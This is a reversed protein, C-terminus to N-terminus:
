SDVSLAPEVAGDETGVVPDVSIAMWPGVPSLRDHARFELTVSGPTVDELDWRILHPHGQDDFIALSTTLGVLGHGGIATDIPTREGDPAVWNVELDVPDGEFDAIWVTVEAVGDLGPAVAVWTVRPQVNDIAISEQCGALMIALCLIIYGMRTAAVDCQRARRRIM